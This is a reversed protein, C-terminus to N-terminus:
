TDLRDLSKALEDPRAHSSGAEDLWHINCDKAEPFHSVLFDELREKIAQEGVETECFFTLNARIAKM